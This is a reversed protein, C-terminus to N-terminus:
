AETESRRGFEARLIDSTREGIDPASDFHLEGTLIPDRAPDYDAEAAAPTIMATLKLLVDVQDDTLHHIQDILQDRPTM